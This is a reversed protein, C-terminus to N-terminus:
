WASQSLQMAYRSGLLVKLISVRDFPRLGANGMWRRRRTEEGGDFVIGSGCGNGEEEDVRDCGNRDDDNGIGSDRQQQRRQRLGPATEKWGLFRLSLVALLM